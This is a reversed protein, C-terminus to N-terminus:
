CEEIDKIFSALKIIRDKISASRFGEKDSVMLRKKKKKELEREPHLLDEEEPVGARLPAGPFMKRYHEPKLNHKAILHPYLVKYRGGCIKCVVKNAEDIKNLKTDDQKTTLLDKKVDGGLDEEGKFIRDREEGEQLSKVVAAEEGQSKYIQELYYDAVKKVIKDLNGENKAYTELIDDIMMDIYKEETFGAGRHSLYDSLKYSVEFKINHKKKEAM